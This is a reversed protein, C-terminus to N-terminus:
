VTRNQFARQECLEEADEKYNPLTSHIYSELITQGATIRRDLCKIDILLITRPLQLDYGM